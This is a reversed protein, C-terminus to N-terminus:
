RHNYFIRNIYYLIKYKYILFAPAFIPLLFYFIKPGKFLSPHLVPSPHTLFWWYFKYSALKTDLCKPITAYWTVIDLNFQNDFLRLYFKKYLQQTKKCDLIMKNIEEPIFVGTFDIIFNLAIKLIHFAQFKKSALILKNWDIDSNIKLLQSLDVLTKLSSWGDKACHISLFLIYYEISFTSCSTKNIMFSQKDEWQEYALRFFVPGKAIQMHMDLFLNESHATFDRFTKKIYNLIKLKDIGPLNFGNTKLVYITKDFDNPLIMLDLDSYVRLVPDNYALMSSAPGKFILVEIGNTKLISYIEEIKSLLSLNKSIHIFYLKKFDDRIKEPFFELLNEKQLRKYILPLLGFRLLLNIFKLFDDNSTFSSSFFLKFSDDNRIALLMLRIHTSQNNIHDLIDNM